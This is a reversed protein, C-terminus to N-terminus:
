GQNEIYQSLIKESVNGITSVFYGRTWLYHKGSWYWHAMYSHNNKWIHYTSFQKLRHVIEYPAITPDAKILLHIHDKDIEQTEIKFQRNEALKMYSLIEDRIPNLLKRRYKTSLIIHYLIKFKKHKLSDYKSM